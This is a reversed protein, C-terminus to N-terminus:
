QPLAGRAECRRRARVPRGRCRSGQSLLKCLQREVKQLATFILRAYVHPRLRQLLQRIGDLRLADNLRDDDTRNINGSAGRSRRLVVLDDGESWCPFYGYAVKPTLVKDRKARLMFESLKPRAVERIQKEFEEASRKGRKMQWQGRFLAVENLYEWVKELKISEELLAGSPKEAKAPADKGDIVPAVAVVAKLRSDTAAAVM